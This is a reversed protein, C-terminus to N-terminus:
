EANTMIYGSLVCKQDGCGLDRDGIQVAVQEEVGVLERDFVNAARRTEPGLRPGISSVRASKQSLVLKMFYLKHLYARRISRL